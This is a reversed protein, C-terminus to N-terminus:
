SVEAFTGFIRDGADGLGPLIYGHENLQRDVAATFIPVAPFERQVARIGEPAAIVSVVTVNEVGKERLLRLAYVVSGGTALMPDLVFVAENNLGDPLNTYYHQPQLTREDRYIGLFGVRARPYLQQFGAVMGLGARLIPLLVVEKNVKAAETRELPTEVSVPRLSLSRTAEVALIGTLETLIRSFEWFPTRKDRLYRLKHQALPHDVEVVQAMKAQGKTQLVQYHIEPKTFFLM